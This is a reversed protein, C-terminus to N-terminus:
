AVSGTNVDLAYMTGLDNGVYAVGDRTTVSSPNASGVAATWARLGTSVNLAVVDGVDTGLLVLGDAVPPSETESFRTTGVPIRRRWRREVTGVLGTAAATGTRAPGM